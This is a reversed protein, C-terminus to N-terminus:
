SNTKLALGIAVSFKTGFGYLTDKLDPHFTVREWPNGLFALLNFESGIFEALGPIGAGGGTLLIREAPRALTARSRYVNFSYRLENILPQLVERVIEPLVGRSTGSLPSTGADRKMAEAQGLGIKLSQAIAETCKKGGVEVSRSLMPIGHDVMLINSRLAGIDVIVSPTPDNGLLARILAFAETELSVLTIGAGKATAIYKEIISKPAATLLCEITKEPAKASGTDTLAPTNPNKPPLPRKLVKFDLVVEELPLPILKKAEWQVASALEKQPVSPIAVVASFVTPIPLAAVGIQVTTKAQQCVRKLLAGAGQPNELYEMSTDEPSFEAFGYTFLAGRGDGGSLQIVKMGGAGFDIGLIGKQKRRFISM